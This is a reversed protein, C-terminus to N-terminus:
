VFDRALSRVWTGTRPPTDAMTGKMSGKRKNDGSVGGKDKQDAILPKMLMYGDDSVETTSSSSKPQSCMNEDLLPVADM